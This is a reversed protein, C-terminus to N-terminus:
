SLGFFVTMQKLVVELATLQQATLGTKFYSEDTSRYILLDDIFDLNRLGAKRLNERLVKWCKAREKYWDEKEEPTFHARYPKFRVSLSTMTTCSLHPTGLPAHVQYYLSRYYIAALHEEESIDGRQHLHDIYETPMHSSASISASIIEKPRGRKHSFNSFYRPTM